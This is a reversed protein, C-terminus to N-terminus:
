QQAGKETTAKADKEKGKGGKGKGKGAKSEGGEGAVVPQKIDVERGSIVRLQGETIVTEGETLGKTIVADGELIREVAVVRLEAKKDAGVVFLHQGRQSNQIATAPVTLVEPRDLVVRVSVFQGPWLHRNTNAFAAKLKLTGTTADIANDLFTLDGKELADGVGSPQAAVALTGAERYRTLPGLNQQPVNFTVYIPSIQNLTVLSVTADSARVLDGVHVGLNGTRGSFPARISCYDLQLKANAVAAASASGAARLARENDQIQQFQEKSVMAEAVLKSYREVQAAATELQVKVKQQDAKALNLANEFPRPDIEFLLDGANVEQGEQIAIKILTGTVQSKLAATQIPEVAGIADLALPVVKRVAKSVLVPAPGGGGKKSGGGGGGAAPAAAKEGCGSLAALTSAALLLCLARHRPRGPSQRFRFFSPLIM